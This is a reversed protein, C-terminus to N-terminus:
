RYYRYPRVTLMAVRHRYRYPEPFYGFRYPLPDYGMPYIASVSRYRGYHVVRTPRRWACACRQRSSIDSAVREHPKLTDASSARGSLFCVATLALVLVLRSM